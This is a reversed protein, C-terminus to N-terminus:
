TGMPILYSIPKKDGLFIKIDGISGSPIPYPPSKKTTWKYKSPEQPDSLLEIMVAITAENQTLYQRLSESPISKLIAKQSSASFPYVEKVVGEAEGYIESRISDFRVLAKMGKRILDGKEVPFLGYVREGNKDTRQFWLLTKGFRVEEGLLVEIMIIRGDSPATLTTSGQKEKLKLLPDGKKVYSGMETYIEEIGGESTSQILEVSRPDFFIGRGEVTIPLHSFLAWCLIGLSILILIGLAVWGPVRIIELLRDLQEPSTLKENLRAKKM